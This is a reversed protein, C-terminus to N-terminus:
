FSSQVTLLDEKTDVERCLRGKVDYAKMQMSGLIANLAHEAYVNTKGEDCWKEIAQQWAKWDSADLKYLPQCAVCDSGFVDVGIEKVRLDSDIRAKFDKEPIPVASDVVVCSGKQIIIDSFVDKTFVLDGHMLVVSDSFTISRLYNLSVIYNTTDYLDNHIFVINLDPYYESCYQKFQYALYGTTIYINKIGSSIISDIQRSLITTGESLEVLGKPKNETLEQLRSGKGSNLIIANM